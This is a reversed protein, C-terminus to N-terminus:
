FFNCTARRLEARGCAEHIWRVHMLVLQRDMSYASVMVLLLSIVGGSDSTIPALLGNRYMQQVLLGRQKQIGHVKFHHSAFALMYLHGGAFFPSDDVKLTRAAEDQM